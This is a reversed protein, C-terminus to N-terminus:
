KKKCFVSSGKGYKLRNIARLLRTYKGGHDLKNNNHAEVNHIRYM